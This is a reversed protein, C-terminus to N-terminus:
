YVGKERLIDEITVFNLSDDKPKEEIITSSLIQQIEIIAGPNSIMNQMAMTMAYNAFTNLFQSALQQNPFVIIKNHDKCYYQNSLTERLVYMIKEEKNKFHLVCRSMVSRPKLVCGFGRNSVHVWKPHEQKVQKQM